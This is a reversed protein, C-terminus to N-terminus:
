GGKGLQGVPFAFKRRGQPRTLSASLKSGETNGNRMGRSFRSGRNAALTKANRSRFLGVGFHAFTLGSRPSAKARGAADHASSVTIPCYSLLHRGSRRQGM